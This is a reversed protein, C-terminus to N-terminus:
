NRMSPLVFGSSSASSDSASPLVFGSASDSDGSSAKSAKKATLIEKGVSVSYPNSKASTSSSSLQWLVAKQTNTLTRSAPAPSGSASPLMFGSSSGGFIGDIAAEYEAHSYSGKTGTDYNPLQERFLAYYDPTINYAAAITYNRITSTKNSNTAYLATIADLQYEPSVADILARERQVDSVKDDDGDALFTLARAASEADSAPIGANLFTLAKAVNVGDAMMSCATRVDMGSDVASKLKGYATLNGKESVEKSGFLSAALALTDHESLKADALYAAYDSDSLSGNGNIDYAPLDSKMQVYSLPTAGGSIATELHSFQDETMLSKLAALQERESSLTTIATQWKQLDSVAKEGDEPTLSSIAESLNYATESDLGSKKFSEYKASDNPVFSFYKFTDKALEKQPDSYDQKDLWHSFDTAKQAAKRDEQNDFRTFGNQITLFDDLTLGEDSFAAIQESRKEENGNTFYEMYLQKKANEPLDANRLAERGGATDSDKIDMIVRAATEMNAGTDILADMIENDRDSALKSMFLAAFDAGALSSNRLIDREVSSKTKDGDAAADRLDLMVRGAETVNSDDPMAELAKRDADTALLGYYITAKASAPIDANRLYERKKVSASETIEGNEDRDADMSKLDNLVKWAERDSVDDEMLAKYVDTEKVSLNKFDSEVWDRQTPLSSKGFLALRVASGIMDGASDKYVPYQLEEGGSSQAKFSGGRKLAILGKVIKQAQNYGFPLAVYGLNSIEEAATKWRYTSDLDSDFAAHYLKFLDPSASAIPIRGSNIDLNAGLLNAGAALGSSFPLEEGVNEILSKIPDKSKDTRFAEAGWGIGNGTISAATTEVINPLEYGTFDGVSDNIIGIPDLAPRRGVLAEYAENYLFAGIFYKLLVAAAQAVTKDRIGRPMDKFVESFQNNVELQFQTFAKFLPNKSEFITPMGGKSREAMIRAARDDADQMAADDTMGAKLNKYYLARVVSESTFSDVWEFPKGLAESIKQVQSKVLPDDGRRNVLFDSTDTLHDNEKMNRLTDWMGRLMDPTSVQAWTQTLPIFNTMASSLNAAIMNAGVRNEMNKMFTYIKRGFLSEVNRDFKSKKNALRNTYEDLETVFTSLTKPRKARLDETMQMKQETPLDSRKWIQEAEASIKGNDARDRIQNAFARLNQINETQHIVDSVGQIYRDFGQVADYTTQTGKRQQANSLYPIGPKFTHTLGNITTPLNDVAMTIGLAAGFRNLMSDEGTQFHPFYGRRYNVPEYGNAVRVDNMQKFLEDYIAKFEKAAIRIKNQNLNPNNKWLYNLIGQWDELTKGDRTSKEKNFSRELLRIADDAEGFLQVAYAESVENGKAVKRSLNLAEVRERYKKKFRASEAEAKRVPIFYKENIQKARETDRKGDANFVIDEVNREMTERAYLIGGKKDHWVESGKLLEEAEQLRNDRLATRYQSIAKLYGDYDRRAEYYELIRERDPGHVSDPTIEKRLLQGVINRQEQNLDTHKEVTEFRLRANKLGKYTEYAEDLTTPAKPPTYEEDAQYTNRAEFTNELARDLSERDSRRDAERDAERDAQAREFDERRNIDAISLQDIMSDLSYRNSLLDRRASEYYLERERDSYQVQRELTDLRSQEDAKKDTVSPLFGHLNDYMDHVAASFDNFLVDSMGVQEVDTSGTYRDARISSAVDAMKVLMDAQNTVEEPFLWKWRSNLEGYYADIPMASSDTSLRLTGFVSKRFANYDTISKRVDEPVYIKTTRLDKLVDSGYATYNESEAGQLNNMVDNFAERIRTEDPNGDASFYGEALAGAWYRGLSRDDATTLGLRNNMWNFLGREELMVDKQDAENLLRSIVSDPNRQSISYERRTEYDFGGEFDAQEDYKWDDPVFDPYNEANDQATTDDPVFDTNAAESTKVTDRYNQSNVERIAQAYLYRAHRLFRVDNQGARGFRVIFRDLLDRFRTALSIDANAVERITTEDTLLHKEIYSAVVEHVSGMGSLKIGHSAYYERVNEFLQKVNTGSNTYGREVFNALKGYADTKELSHTLEHAVIQAVPNESRVNIHIKGTNEDYYGNRIGGLEDVAEDFFDVGVNLASAISRVRETQERSIRKVGDGTPLEARPVAEEAPAETYSREDWARDLEAIQDNLDEFINDYQSDSLKGQNYAQQYKDLMGSLHDRRTRYQEPSLGAANEPYDTDEQQMQAASFAQNSGDSDDDPMSTYTPADTTTELRTNETEPIVATQPQNANLNQVANESIMQATPLVNEGSKEQVASEQVPSVNATQAPASTQPSEVAKSLAVLYRGYQEDSVPNFTKRAESIDSALRYAESSKDAGLGQALVKEIGEDGSQRVRMGLRALTKASLNGSADAFALPNKQAADSLINTVTDSPLMAGLEGLELPSLKKSADLKARVSKAIRQADDNSRLNVDSNVASLLQPAIDARAFLNGNKRMTATDFAYGSAGFAMGSIAGGLGALVPNKIFFQLNAAKVANDHSVGNQEANRIYQRYESDDGNAVADVLMNAFESVVEEGGESGMQSLLSSVFTKVGRAGSSGAIKFLNDLGMKETLMEISGSAAGMGAAHASSKGNLINSVSTDGASSLGLWLLTGAEGLGTASSLGLSILNDGMSYATSALLNGLTDDPLTAERAQNALRTAAVGGANIDIPKYDGTIAQKAANAAVEAYAFPKVLAGSVAGFAAQAPKPMNAVSQSIRAHDRQTIRHRILELYDDARQDIKKQRDLAEEYAQMTQSANPTFLSYARNLADADAGAAAAQERLWTYTAKEEPTFYRWAYAEYQSPAPADAYDRVSKGGAEIAFAVQKQIANAQEDQNAYYRGRKLEEIDSQAANMESMDRQYDRVMATLPSTEGEQLPKYDPSLQSYNSNVRAYEEDSLEAANERQRQINQQQLLRDQAHAIAADYEEVTQPNSYKADEMQRLLSLRQDMRDVIDRGTPFGGSETRLGSQVALQKRLAAQQEEYETNYADYASQYETKAAEFKPLTSNYRDLVSRYTTYAANYEAGNEDSPDLRYRTFASQASKYATDSDTKLRSVSDNLDTLRRSASVLHVTNKWPSVYGSKRSSSTIEDDEDSDRYPSVYGSKRSATTSKSSKVSVAERREMLDDYAKKANSKALKLSSESAKESKLQFNTLNAIGNNLTDRISM